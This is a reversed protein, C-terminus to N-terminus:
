IILILLISLCYRVNKEFFVSLNDNLEEYNKM